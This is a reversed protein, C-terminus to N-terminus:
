KNNSSNEDRIEKLTKIKIKNKKLFGLLEDLLKIKQIGEYLGHIYMTSLDKKKIKEEIVQLIKEDSYNKSVLYEIIPTNSKGKITIPVNILNTYLIKQVKEGEFDSVVKFDRKDLESVVDRNIRFAPSCFSTPIKGFIKKYEEISKDLHKGIDIRELGRTWARHKWGHIGIEHGEELIRRLIKKNRRIFNRPFLLMRLIEGKSFVKIGRECDLKKRYKLLEFINSEGGMTLYFSAKVDHKKLLDLIKPVGKKIGKESELDIRLAFTKM